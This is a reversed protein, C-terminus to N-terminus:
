ALKEVAEAMLKGIPMRQPCRAEAVAYDAKLLRDRGQHPIQEFLQRARDRDGYSNYYMLYRMVESVYPMDPLAADCINACGACYGSCTAYAYQDLVDKDARTLKTKDCVAAINATLASMSEMGICATTVAEDDLVYKIKAQQASFGRKMFHEFLKEEEPEHTKQGMGLTKMAVVGKGAKYCAQVATKVKPDQMLRFNYPTQIVDVWDMKSVAGLENTNKHTSLGFLKIVKRKKADEAWRRVDDSLQRLEVMEHVGYYIDIYDTHMRKLSLQLRQEMLEPTCVAFSGPGQKGFISSKSIIIIDKRANPYKEFFKGIGIESNGGGYINATDWCVVGCKHATRYIVQNEPDVVAGLTLIPVEMSSNGIKRKPIKLETTPALAALVNTDNPDNPENVDARANAGVISGLGTVGITKLFNRRNVKDNRSM